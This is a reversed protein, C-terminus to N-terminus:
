HGGGGALGVGSVIAGFVKMRLGVAKIIGTASIVHGFFGEINNTYTQVICNAGDLLLAEHEPHELEIFAHFTGPKANQLDILNGSPVVQGTSVAPQFSSIRAPLVADRFGLNANSDCAVEAPMGEYLTARAIQSFGAVVRVPEGETRDPIIIMAPSIVLTTAPSGVSLAMQTITGDTFSRVETFSLAVEASEISNDLAIRQAPFGSDLEINALDLQAEAASLEAETATVSTRLELVTDATGSGRQLLTEADALDDRLKELEAEVEKISAEAVLKNDKAKAEEADLIALQAKAEALAAQQASDEIKFLLDGAKVRQGNAVPLETVPGSTQAVVSITRFPVLGAYTKPHFYFITLFLAGAMLVWLFVATKMNWVTMAEGRRKLRFYQIIVPFSTLLTEFM